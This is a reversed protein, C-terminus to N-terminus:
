WDADIEIFGSTMFTQAVAGACSIEGGDKLARVLKGVEDGELFVKKGYQEDGYGIEDM